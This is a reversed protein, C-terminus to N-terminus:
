MVDFQLLHAEGILGDDVEADAAFGEAVLDTKRFCERLASAVVQLAVDGQKHGLTDNITKFDNVDIYFLLLSTRNRIVSKMQHEALLVFGRRNYLGTLSDTLAFERLRAERRTVWLSILLLLVVVLLVAVVLTAHSASWWPARKLVVIDDDTRLLLRFARAEHGSDVRTFCIGTVQVSSGVPPIGQTGESKPLWVTFTAGQDDVFLVYEESGPIAQRLIGKMRVLRADYPSGSFGDKEVIMQATSVDVPTIEEAKSKVARLVSSELSPSYDGGGPYGVAEVEMGVKVGGTQASHVLLGENGQQLYIGQDPLVYTVVGRVRVPPITSQKPDFRLLESLPRLPRDFPNEPSAQVIELDNLSAAFLRLGIFQRKDNFNTACVGRISVMSTPLRQWGNQSFERIRATILTGGGIDMDLFLVQRGWSQKITAARVVGKVTIWQSDLKGGALQDQSVLPAPPLAHEGLVKVEKALILPAFLGPSTVGRIEVEEGQHLETSAKGAGNLAEDLRDVSIGGSNGGAEDEIFFSSKWGSLVTVVGRVRVPRSEGAQEATLARIEGVRTLEGSGQAAAHGLAAFFVGSLLMGIVARGIQREAHRETHRQTHRQSVLRDGTM